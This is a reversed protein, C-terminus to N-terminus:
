KGFFSKKNNLTFRGCNRFRYTVSHPIVFATYRGHRNAAGMEWMCLCIESVNIAQQSVSLIYYVLITCICALHRRGVSQISKWAFRFCRCCFITYFYKNYSYISKRLFVYPTNITWRLIHSKKRWLLFNIMFLYPVFTNVRNVVTWYHKFVAPSWKYNQVFKRSCLNNIRFRPETFGKPRAVLFTASINCSKPKLESLLETCKELPKWSIQNCRRRAERFRKWLKQTRTFYQACDQGWRHWATCTQKM